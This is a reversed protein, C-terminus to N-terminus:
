DLLRKNVLALYQLSHLFSAVFFQRPCPWNGRANLSRTGHTLALRGLVGTLNPKLLNEPFPLLEEQFHRTM